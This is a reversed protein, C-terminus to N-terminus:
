DGSDGAGRVDAEAYPALFTTSAILNSSLTSNDSGSLAFDGNNNPTCLSQAHGSGTVFLWCFLALILAKAM